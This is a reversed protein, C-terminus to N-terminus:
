KGSAGGDKGEAAGPAPFIGPVGPAAGGTYAGSADDGIDFMRISSDGGAVALMSDDPAFDLSFVARTLGTVTGVLQSRKSSVDFV